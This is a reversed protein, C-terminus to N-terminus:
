PSSTSTAVKGDLNFGIQRWADVTPSDGFNVRTM